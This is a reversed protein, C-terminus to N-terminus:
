QLKLSKKSYPKRILTCVHLKRIKTDYKVGVVSVPKTHVGIDHTRKKRDYKPYLQVVWRVSM